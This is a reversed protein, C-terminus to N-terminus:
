ELPSLWRNDADGDAAWGELSGDDTRIQYWNFGDVAQPGAVVTFQAGPNVRSLLAGDVSPVSRVSLQGGQAMTVQVRDGVRPPRNVPRAEGIQPSIWATEGDGEAAWGANGQGDDIRWWTFNDAEVPGELVTVLQGSGFNGTLNAQTSPADRYNLGAPATVRAPQGPALVSGPQPTPTFTPTVEPMPTDTPLAPLPTAVPVGGTGQTTDASPETSPAEVPPTTPQPTPTPTPRPAFSGCALAPGLWILSALLLARLRWLRRLPPETTVNM